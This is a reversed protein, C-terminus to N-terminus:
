FIHGEMGPDKVYGATELNMWETAYRFARNRKTIFYCEGTHTVDDEDTTLSDDSEGIIIVETIAMKSPTNDYSTATIQMKGITLWLSCKHENSKTYERQLDILEKITSNCHIELGSRLDPM